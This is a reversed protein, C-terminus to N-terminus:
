RILRQLCFRSGALTGKRALWQLQLEETRLEVRKGNRRNGDAGTRTDIKRTPNARLRFRLVTGPALASYATSIDKTDPNAFESSDLYSAPLKTWDPPAQSQVLLKPIGRGDAELYFLVGFAHRPDQCDPPLQPFVSMVTRYLQQIDALDRRVERSRTNLILRSLIVASGRAYPDMRDARATRATTRTPARPTVFSPPNQAAMSNQKGTPIAAVSSRIFAEITKRGLKEDGGLNDLLLKANVNAYRYFCASNFEVTGIMSAGIESSPQLDDVATFYDFEVAVKHTSIAHAADPIM